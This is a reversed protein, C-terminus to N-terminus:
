KMKRNIIHEPAELDQPVQDEPQPEGFSTHVPLIGAWKDLDVAKGHDSPPANRIKVSAESLDVSMVAVRALERSDPENGYDWAGPALNEAMVKLGKKKEDEDQLLRGTGHIIASRYNVSNHYVSRAYVIGDLQTIAVCIPVEEFFLRASRAGRSAHMYLTDNERGYVSPLLVPAGDSIFGVHCILGADLVDYLTQRETAARERYRNVTSRATPSLPKTSANSM